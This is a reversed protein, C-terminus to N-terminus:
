GHGAGSGKAAKRAVNSSSWSAWEQDMDHIDAVGIELVMHGSHLRDQLVEVELSLGRDEDEVLGVAERCPGGPLGASRYRAM